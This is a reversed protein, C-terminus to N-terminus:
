FGFRMSGNQVKWPSARSQSQIRELEHVISEQQKQEALQQLSALIKDLKKKDAEIADKSDYLTKILDLQQQLDDLITGHVGLNEETDSESVASTM